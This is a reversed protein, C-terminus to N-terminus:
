ACSVCINCMALGLSIHAPINNHFAVIYIDWSATDKYKISNKKFPSLPIYIWIKYYLIKKKKCYNLAYIPFYIHYIGFYTRM